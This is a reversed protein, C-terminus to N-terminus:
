SIPSSRVFICNEAINLDDTFCRFIKRFGQDGVMGFYVPVPKGTDPINNRVSIETNVPMQEPGTNM